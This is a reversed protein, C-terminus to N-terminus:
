GKGVDLETCGAASGVARADGDVVTRSVTGSLGVVSVRRMEFSSESCSRTSSALRGPDNGVSRFCYRVKWLVFM